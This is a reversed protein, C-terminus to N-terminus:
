TLIDAPSLVAPYVANCNNGASTRRHCSNNESIKGAQEPFLKQPYIVRAGFYDPRSKGSHVKDASQIKEATQHVTNNTSDPSHAIRDSGGYNGKQPGASQSYNPYKGDELNGFIVRFKHQKQGIGYRPCNSKQHM